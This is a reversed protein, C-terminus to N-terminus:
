LKHCRAAQPAAPRGAGAVPTSTSEVPVVATGHADAGTDRYDSGYYKRNTATHFDLSTMPRYRAEGCEPLCALVFDEPLYVAM